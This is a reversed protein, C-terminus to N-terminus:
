PHEGHRRVFRRIADANHEPVSPSSYIPTYAGCGGCHVVGWRHGKHIERVEFHDPLDALTDAIPKKPHRGRSVM